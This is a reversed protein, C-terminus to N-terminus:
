AAVGQPTAADLIAAARVPEPLPAVSAATSAALARALVQAARAADPLARLMPEARSFQWPRAHPWLVLYALRASPHLSLVIDGTGDPEINSAAADIMAFPLNMTVPLALGIHMVVRRSTISYVTARGVLAAYLALLALPVLAVLAFRASSLATAAVSASGHLSLAASLAIIVGFYAALGKLRLARTALQRWDPAGQWLLREGDPLREPLGRLPAPRAEPRAKDALRSM